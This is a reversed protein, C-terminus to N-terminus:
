DQLVGVARLWDFQTKFYDAVFDGGHGGTRMAHGADEFVIVQNRTVNTALTQRWVRATACTPTLPDKAGLLVLVPMTLQRISEQPDFTAVWAWNSRNEPSPIVREIGMKNFWPEAQLPEIIAMLSEYSIASALYDFYAELLLDAVNAAEMSDDINQVITRYQASEVQKPTLGGGTVVIAFAPSSMNAALPVVWGGQSVGWYGSRQPDVRPQSAIFRFAATADAALDALSSTVWDGGSQGSGRKDYILVVIGGFALRKAVELLESRLGSGSGHVLVLGPFPGGDVPTFVTGALEVDGNRFTVSSEGIEAQTAASSAALWMSFM